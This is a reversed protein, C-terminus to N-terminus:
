TCTLTEGPEMWNGAKTCDIYIIGVSCEM